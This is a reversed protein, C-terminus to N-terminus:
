GRIPVGSTAALLRFRQEEGPGFEAKPLAVRRREPLALVYFERTEAARAVSSWPVSAERGAFAYRVGNRNFEFWVDSRNRADSAFAISPYLFYFAVAMLMYTFTPLHQELPAGAGLTFSTATWLALMMLVLVHFSAQTNWSAHTARTFIKRSPRYSVSVRMGESESISIV